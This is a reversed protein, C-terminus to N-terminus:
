DQPASVGNVRRWVGPSVGVMATLVRTFHSQDAFGCVLAVDTLSLARNSLLERACDIRHKLLWRHPPAGTSQRFARAFHRVSLDCETALRNLPLEEKLNARLLEKM